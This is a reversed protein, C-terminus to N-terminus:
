PSTRAKVAPIHNPEWQEIAWHWFEELSVRLLEAPPHQGLFSLARVLAPLPTAPDLPGAFTQKSLKEGAANVVVPLHLYRPTPVGLMQQLYIQRPTSDLLDSGRVVETVGQEADDVVVALQYAFLGDARRVVFDGVDRELEQSFVGQLRDEFRIHQGAVNVRITRARRGAPAATRCSGPYVGPTGGSAAIAAAVEKRSCVCGYAVGLRELERLAARYAEDRRSQYVVEGDWYLGFAELSRLIADAAGPVERPRDVDEMRVLWLGDQSRAQLFSGVAAVLSGFHLPGSPSPAFRGIHNM